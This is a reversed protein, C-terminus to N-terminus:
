LPSRGRFSGGKGGKKKRPLYEPPTDIMPGSFGSAKRFNATNLTELLNEAIPSSGRYSYLDLTSDVQEKLKELEADM